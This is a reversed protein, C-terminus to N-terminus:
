RRRRRWARVQHRTRKLSKWGRDARELMTLAPGHSFREIPVGFATPRCHGAALRTVITGPTRAGDLQIEMVLPSLQRGSHLDLGVVPLFGPHAECLALARRRPAMGDYRRNWVEIGRVLELWRGDLADCADRRAPHALMTMSAAGKLRSALEDAPLEEGLFEQSGWTPVHFVGSADSYELGPIVTVGVTDSVERCAERYEAWRDDSFGRDHETMLLADFRLRALKTAVEKLTWRGDYSWTSHLHVAARIKAVGIAV